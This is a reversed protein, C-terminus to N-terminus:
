MKTNCLHHVAVAKKVCVCVRECELDSIYLWEFYLKDYECNSAPRLLDFQLRHTYSFHIKFTSFHHANVRTLFAGFCNVWVLFTESLIDLHLRLVFSLFRFRLLFFFLLTDVFGFQECSFEWTETALSIIGGEGLRGGCLWVYRYIGHAKETNQKTM